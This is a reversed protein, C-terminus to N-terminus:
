AAARGYIRDALGQGDLDFVRPTGQTLRAPGATQATQRGYHTGYPVFVQGEPTTVWEGSATAIQDPGATATTTTDTPQRLHRYGYVAAVAGLTMLATGFKNGRKKLWWGALLLLAGPAWWYKQITKNNRIQDMSLLFFGGAALLVSGLGNRDALLAAGGRRVMARAQGRGRREVRRARDRLEALYVRSVNVREGAAARGAM